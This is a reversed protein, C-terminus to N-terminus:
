SLAGCDFTGDVTLDTNVVLNGTIRASDNVHLGVLPSAINVGVRDNGADVVLVSTDVTLSGSSVAGSFAGSVASTLQGGNLTAVGDSISGTTSFNGTSTIAGINLTSNGIITGNVELKAGPATTGIGVNGAPELTIGIASNASLNLDGNTNNGLTLANTGADEIELTPGDGGVRIGVQNGAIEHLHSLTAGFYWGNPALGDARLELDYTGSPTNRIGLQGSDNIVFPTTDSASDEIVFSNGTGTNTITMAVNNSSQNVM